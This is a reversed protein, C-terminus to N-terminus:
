FVLGNERCADALAKIRGTYAYSSKDFVVSSLNKQLCKKAFETGVLKALEIGSKKDNKASLSLTSHSELVAGDRDNLLQVYLNKNSRFVLLRPRGSKNNTVINNKSRYKRRQTNTLM